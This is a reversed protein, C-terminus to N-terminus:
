SGKRVMLRIARVAQVGTSPSALLADRVLAAVYGARWELFYWPGQGGALALREMFPLDPLYAGNLLKSLTAQNCPVKRSFQRQSQPGVLDALAKPFPLTSYQRPFVSDLVDEVPVMSPKPRRGGSSRRVGNARDGERLFVDYADAVIRHLVEPHRELLEPWEGQDAYPVRARAAEWDSKRERTV